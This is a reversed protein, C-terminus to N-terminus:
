PSVRLYKGPRNPDAVYYNGDAARRAGQLSPAAPQGQPASQQGSAGAGAQPAVLGGPISPRDLVAGVQPARGLSPIRGASVTQETQAQMQKFVNMAEVPDLAQLNPIPKAFLEREYNSVAGQGANQAQTARAQLAAQARDYRQRAAEMEKSTAQNGPQSKQELGIANGVAAIGMDLPRGLWSSGAVPGIAGLKHAAEYAAAAEDIIPKLDAAAKAAKVAEEENAVFAKTRAEKAVKESYGPPVTSPAVTAGQIPMQTVGGGMAGVRYPVKRGTEDEQWVVQPKDELSKRQLELQQLAIFNRIAQQQREGMPDAIQSLGAQLGGMLGGGNFLGHPQQIAQQAFFSPDIGQPLMGQQQIPPRVDMPQNGMNGLLGGGQGGGMLFDFLGGAM